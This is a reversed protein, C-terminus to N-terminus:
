ADPITQAETDATSMSSSATLHLPRLRLELRKLESGLDGSVPVGPLRDEFRRLIAPVHSREGRDELSRPLDGERIRTLIM